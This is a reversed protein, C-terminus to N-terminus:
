FNKENEFFIILFAIFDVNKFFDPSFRKILLHVQLDRFVLASFDAFNEM